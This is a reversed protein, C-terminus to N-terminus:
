GRGIMEAAALLADYANHAIAMQDHLYTVMASVLQVEAPTTWGPRRMIQLLEGTHDRVALDAVAMGLAGVREALAAHEDVTRMKTASM